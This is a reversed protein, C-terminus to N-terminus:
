LQQIENTQINYINRIHQLPILITPLHTSQLLQLNTQLPQAYLQPTRQTHNLQIYQQQQHMFMQTNGVPSLQPNVNASLTPPSSEMQFTNYFDNSPITLLPMSPSHTLVIVSEHQTEQLITQRANATTSVIKLCLIKSMCYGNTHEVVSLQSM